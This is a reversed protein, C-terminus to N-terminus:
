ADNNVALVRYLSVSEDNEGDSNLIRLWLTLQGLRVGAGPEYSFSCGNVHLALLATSTDSDFAVPQAAAPEYGWYRRLTGQAPDCVYSVPRGVLYFNNNPAQLPFPAGAPTFSVTNLTGNSTVARRNGGVWADTDDDQALNYVVLYQTDSSEVDGGLVDFVADDADTFDLIDGSGDGALAARYRGGAEVPFFELYTVGEVVTVRLSNPLAARVDRAMRTLATNAIDVLGARRVSAFYGELPNRIFLAVIGSLIGVLTIVMILEVLTFGGQRAARADM